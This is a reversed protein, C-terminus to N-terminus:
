PPGYKALLRRLEQQEAKELDTQAQAMRAASEKQYWRSALPAGPLLERAEFVDVQRVDMYGLRLFEEEAQRLADEDEGASLSLVRIGCSGFRNDCSNGRPGWYIALYSKRKM